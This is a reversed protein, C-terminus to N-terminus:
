KKSSKLYGFGAKDLIGHPPEHTVLIDITETTSFLKKTIDMHILYVVKWINVRNIM